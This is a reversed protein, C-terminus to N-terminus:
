SPAVHPQACVLWVRWLEFAAAPAPDVSVISEWRGTTFPAHQMSTFVGMDLYGRAMLKVTDDLGRLKWDSRLKHSHMDGKNTERGDRWSM